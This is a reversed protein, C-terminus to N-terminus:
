GVWGRAHHVQFWEADDGVRRVEAVANIAREGGQPLMDLLGGSPIHEALKAAKEPVFQRLRCCGSLVEAVPVLRAAGEVHHLRVVLAVSRLEFEDGLRNTRALVPPHVD